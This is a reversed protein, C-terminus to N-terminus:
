IDARGARDGTASGLTRGGPHTGDSRPARDVIARHGLRGTRQTRRAARIELPSGNALLQGSLQLEVLADNRPQDVGLDIVQLSIEPVSKLREVLSGDLTEQWTPWTLDSLLYLEKREKQNQQLLRVSQEILPKWPQALYNVDLADVAKSAAGLDVAFAAARFRADVVAVDSDAPFQRILWRAIEQARELRTQNRYRYLMRPSTDLLLVAAVPAERNGLVAPVQRRAVALATQGLGIALALGLLALVGLAIHRAAPHRGAGDVDCGPGAAAGATRDAAM